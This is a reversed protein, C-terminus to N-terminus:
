EILTDSSLKCSESLAFDLRAGLINGLNIKVSARNFYSLSDEPELDIAKTFYEAAEKYRGRDANKVGETNYFLKDVKNMKLQQVSIKLSSLKKM